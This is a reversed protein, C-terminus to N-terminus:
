RFRFYRLPQSQQVHKMKQGRDARLKDRVLGKSISIPTLSSPVIGLSFGPLVGSEWHGRISHEQSAGLRM